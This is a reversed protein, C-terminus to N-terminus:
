SYVGHAIRGLVAEVEQAGADTDLLRLPPEGGLARNPRSLWERTHDDDGLVARAAAVMRAVRFIRDSEDQRFRARAAKRRALTRDTVSVLPALSGLDVGLVHALREFAAYPLGNRVLHRLDASSAVQRGLVRRGGLVDVVAALQTM